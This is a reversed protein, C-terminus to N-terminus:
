PAAHTSAWVGLMKENDNVILTKDVQVVIALVNANAFCDKQNAPCKGVATPQTQPIHIAVSDTVTQPLKPCGAADLGPSTALNGPCPGGCATDIATVAAVFGALNFFFPDSRPGAFVKVKGDASDKGTAASFDGAVYDLVTGNPAIVWCKGDTDSAFTCVVKSEKAALIDAGMLPFAPYRDLHFVYQVSPGFHRTGDDFPSVTLALNIKDGASTMWAYTDGLDALPNTALTMTDIHDAAQTIPSHLLAIM